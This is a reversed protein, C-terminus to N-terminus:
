NIKKESSEYLIIHREFQSYTNKNPFTMFWICKYKFRILTLNNLSTNNLNVTQPLMLYRIYLVTFWLNYNRLTYVTSKEYFLGM